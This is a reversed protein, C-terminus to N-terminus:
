PHITAVLALLQNFQAADKLFLPGCGITVYDPMGAKVGAITVDAAAITSFGGSIVIQRGAVSDFWKQLAPPCPARVTDGAALYTNEANQLDQDVFAKGPSNAGGIAVGSGTTQCASLAIAAAAALIAIRKM